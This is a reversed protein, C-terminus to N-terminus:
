IVLDKEECPITIIFNHIRLITIKDQFEDDIKKNKRTFRRM